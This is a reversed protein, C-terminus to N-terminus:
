AREPARPWARLAAVDAGVRRCARAAVGERLARRILPGMVRLQLRAAHDLAQLRRGRGMMRLAWGPLLAAGSGLFVSRAPGLVAGPFKAHALVELVTRSRESYALQPLVDAFYRDVAAASAPVDRAGLAEAVRRTEDFYRDLDARPLEVNRYAQFGQVFSWMETVHVWTLLAPESASYPRGDPLHGRVREHVRRIREIEALAHARPAYTTAAVFATTRRLRGLLDERFNSHDWVGALARPHLTQLMLACLGGAMMGPFDAHIRWTITDPGFLGPDGAPQEYVALTAPSSAFLRRIFQRILTDTPLPM